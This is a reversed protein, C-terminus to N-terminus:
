EYQLPAYAYIYINVYMLIMHCKVSKIEYDVSYYMDALLSTTVKHGPHLEGSYQGVNEVVKQRRHLKGPHQHQHHPNELSM